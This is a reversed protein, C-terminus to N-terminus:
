YGIKCGEMWKVVSQVPSFSVMGIPIYFLKWEMGGPLLVFRLIGTRLAGQVFPDCFDGWNPHEVVVVEEVCRDFFWGEVDFSWGKLGNPVISACLSGWNPYGYGRRGFCKICTGKGKGLHIVSIM